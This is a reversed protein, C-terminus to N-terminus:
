RSEKTSTKKTLATIGGEAFDILETLIEEIDLYDSVDPRGMLREVRGNRNIVAILSGLALTYSMAAAERSAGPIVQQLKEIFRQATPDYYERVLAQDRERGVVLGAFIKAYPAAGGAPGLPPRFLAELIQRVAAPSTTNVQELLVHRESNIKKSRTRIVEAYLREKTGFHYHLLAQSVRAQSAIAKMGAGDFGKEAFAIEAALVIGEVATGSNSLPPIPECAGNMSGVM